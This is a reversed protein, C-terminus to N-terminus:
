GKSIFKLCIAEYIARIGLRVRRIFSYGSHGDQRKQRVVPISHIKKASIGIMGVVYSAHSSMEVLSSIIERNIAVFLGADPPINVIKSLLWKFGRSSLLRGKSEYLGRRAAFVVDSGEDMGALLQPIVEPPDQLDADLIVARDGSCAALGRLVARNQGGNKDLYIAQVNPDLLVLKALIRKSDDSSADDVFLIEYPIQNRELVEKIRCYLADLSDSNQYVPIVVSLLYGQM